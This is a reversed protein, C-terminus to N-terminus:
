GQKMASNMIAFHTNLMKLLIQQHLTNESLKALQMELSVAGDGGSAAQDAVFRPELGALAEKTVGQGSELGERLGSLQEEFSVDIARYGPTNANAINQAIAQQRMVTADLAMSLLAKTSGEISAVV